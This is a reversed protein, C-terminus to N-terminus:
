RIWYTVDLGGRPAVAATLGEAGPLLAIGATAQLGLTLRPSLAWDVRGTPGVHGVLALRDPALGATEFRQWVGDVGGSLGLGASLRGFDTLRLLGLEAGLSQQTIALLANEDTTQSARVSLQGTLWPADARLGLSAQLGTAMPSTLPAQLGGGATLALSTHPAATDGRRASQGYPQARMAAMSMATAQGARVELPAEWVRDTERRRLLYRGAPLAVTAAADLVLEAILRTEAADFVVYTGADRIQVTGTNRAGQLTTLPIDAQGQMNFAFSPHQVVAARSTAALTRAYTYRYAEDLTVRHDGSADAAGSLGAVLHHTFVGGRLRDSEQADEGAASATFVAIGEAGLTDPVKIEFAPVQAGGRLRLLEGSQCADVVLLRLDAPMERVRGLLESLPLETGALHLADADAHGAFYVFVLSADGAQTERAVRASVRQLALRLEDADSGQLLVLDESRVGGLSRLVEAIRQADSEAFRLPQEPGVGVNSGVVVAYRREAAQASLGLWLLPLLTM